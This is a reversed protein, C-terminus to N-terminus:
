RGATLSQLATTDVTVDTLSGGPQIQPYMINTTDQVHALGIFHGLEHTFARRQSTAAAGTCDGACLPITSNIQVLAGTIESGNYNATTLGALDSAYPWPNQFQIVNTTITGPSGDTGTYIQASSPVQGQYNFLKMGAQTEWFSIADQLDQEAAASTAISASSYITVPFASWGNTTSGSSSSADKACGSFITLSVLAGFLWGQSKM